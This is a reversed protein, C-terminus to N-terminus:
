KPPMGKSCPCAAGRGPPYLSIAVRTSSILSIKKLISNYSLFLEFIQLRDRKSICVMASTFVNIQTMNKRRM